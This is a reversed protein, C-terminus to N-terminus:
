NLIAELDAEIDGAATRFGRRYYDKLIAEGDAMPNWAMQAMVYYQPGHTPWNEWITDFMLGICHNEGVFRFDKIVQRIAIDPLGLTGGARNWVNPRWILNRSVKGWDSFKMRFMTPSNVLSISSSFISMLHVESSTSDALIPSLVWLDMAANISLM